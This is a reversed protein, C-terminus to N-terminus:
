SNYAILTCIGNKWVFTVLVVMLKWWIISCLCFPKKRVNKIYKKKTKTGFDNNENRVIEINIKLRIFASDIYIEVFSLNFPFDLFFFLYVVILM